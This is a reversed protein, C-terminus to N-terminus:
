TEPNLIRKLHKAGPVAQGTLLVAAMMEAKPDGSGTMKSRASGPMAAVRRALREIAAAAATDGLDPFHTARLEVLLRDRRERAEESWWGRAGHRGLGLAQELGIAVSATCAAEYRRVGALFWARDEPVPRRGGDLAAALRRLRAIPRLDFPEAQVPRASTPSMPTHRDSIGLKEALDAGTVLTEPEDSM